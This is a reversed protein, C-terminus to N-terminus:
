TYEKDYNSIVTIVSKMSTSNQLIDELLWQSPKIKMSLNELSIKLVLKKKRRYESIVSGSM